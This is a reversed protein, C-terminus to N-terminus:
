ETDRPRSPAGSVCPKAKRRSRRSGALGRGSRQGNYREPVAATIVFPSVDVPRERACCPSAGGGIRRFRRRDHKGVAVEGAGRRGDRVVRECLALPRFPAHHADRDLAQLCREADFLVAHKPDRDCLTRHPVELGSMAERDVAYDTRGRPDRQADVALRREVGPPRGRRPSRSRVLRLERGDARWAGAFRRRDGRAGM